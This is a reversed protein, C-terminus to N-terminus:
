EPKLEREMLERIGEDVPKGQYIVRYVEGAIPMDLGTRLAEARVAAVTPIGEATLRSAEIERLTAGRAFREGALHNRSQASMCTAVLDGLGALGYFTRLAGGLYTGLRVMEALGRTILAAKSNDGLGLGDSMGAALAIVNKLAGAIEVGAVDESTYVRLHPVTFLAQVQRALESDRSAVTTAAPKRAALEAALNPGSLVAVPAGPREEAVVESLRQFRDAQLGKAALVLPLRRGDEPPLLRLLGRVARSPVAIVALRARSVAALLDATPAVHDPLAFDPLYARNERGTALEEAHEERRTWLAVEAGSEALMAALVTGWAGAGLVAVRAASGSTYSM